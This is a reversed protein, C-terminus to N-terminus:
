QYRWSAIPVFISSAVRESMFWVELMVITDYAVDLKTDSISSGVCEVIRTMSDGVYAHETLCAFFVAAPLSVSVKLDTEGANSSNMFATFVLQSYKNANAFIHLGINKHMPISILGLDATQSLCM